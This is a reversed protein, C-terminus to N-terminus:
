PLKVQANVSLNGHRLTKTEVESRLGEIDEIARLQALRIRINRSTRALEPQDRLRRVCRRDAYSRRPPNLQSQSELELARRSPILEPARPARFAVGTSRYLRSRQEDFAPRSSPSSAM